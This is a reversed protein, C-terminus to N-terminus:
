LPPRSTSRHRLRVLYVLCVAAIVLQLMAMLSDLDVGQDYPDASIIWPATAGMALHYNLSMFAGVISTLAVIGVLVTRERSGLRTGRRLWALPAAILAVGVIVEGIMVLYGFLPGNPIVVGDIFSKYWGSQDKTTDSLAAALGGPFNDAMVKALGSMLWEYGVILQVAIFGALLPRTEAPVAPRV